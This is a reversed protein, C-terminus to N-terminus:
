VPVPLDFAQDLPIDVALAEFARRVMARDDALFLAAQVHAPLGAARRARAVTLHLQWTWDEWAHVAEPANYPAGEPAPQPETLKRQLRSVADTAPEEILKWLIEVIQRQEAEGWGGDAFGRRAVAECALAIATRANHRLDPESALDDLVPLCVKTGCRRLLSIAIMWRPLYLRYEKTAEDDATTDRREIERCLRAEARADHWMALLSAAWWSVNDDTDDLLELVSERVGAGQPASGARYLHWLALGSGERMEALWAEVQAPPTPELVWEATTAAGFEDGAPTERKLAGTATLLERLEDMPVDRSRGDHQLAVTAAVGAVEGIRQIDRQMRFSHHADTSVGLARCALWVNDLGRPLLVRYPIECGLRGRWERCVWVWFVSEDSEFEYDVAHNDYHCGTLGVSDPFTRREIHDALTVIYDTEIHRSQRLGIAPAIYIPRETEAYEPKLHLYIGHLRARTLDESDTADVFGADFNLGHLRGGAETQIVKGASQSYAHLLGDGQRGFNVTAGARAAVDGDGTSDVWAKAALRLPGSETTLLGHTVSEGSLEVDILAADTLIRTGSERLMEDLVWKKADPHFGRVQDSRGFLPSVARIREDLEEQRGGRVGFYYVHIGGGSGIGGAFPLPDFAVVDAGQRGAAIAALAGGTGLGAVAVAAQEERAEIEGEFPVGATANARPSDALRRAASLGLDFRGALSDAHGSWPTAALVNSNVPSYAAGPEYVDFPLLSAHTLGAGALGAYEDQGENERMTRLDSLLSAPTWATSGPRSVTLHLENSWLSDRMAREPIPTDSNFYLHLRREGPAPPSLQADLLRLLEGNDTADIWQRAALRKTGNKTGLLVAHLLDGDSEVALPAAYYLVSLEGAARARRVWESGIVEAIPGDILSNTAGHRSKLLELWERWENSDSHGARNEFSWGSEALLAARRDILLVKRKQAVLAQAAAFGAYGGGFIAVDHVTEFVSQFVPPTVPSDFSM